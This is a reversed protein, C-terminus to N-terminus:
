PKGRSEGYTIGSAMIHAVRIPEPLYSRTCTIKLIKKAKELDCGCIQIYLNDVRHIEGANRLLQLKRQMGLRKLAVEIEHMKPFHRMVVIVPIRTKENLRKVDVVNFGAVSIGDLMIAQLQSYFKSKKVMKIIQTTSDTGDVTVTTSLVGDMFNGGRFFVGLILTKGQNFKNFPADDIGLVRIEKKVMHSTAANM